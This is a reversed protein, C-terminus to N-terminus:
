AISGLGADLGLRGSADTLYWGGDIKVIYASTESTMEDDDGKVTIDADIDYGETVSKRALEYRDNVGERIENLKSDTLKDEKTVKYSVRVNDGYEDELLDIVTDVVDEADRELDDIDMDYTDEYYDWYAQPALKDLKNVQGKIMVDIYNNIASKYGGGATLAVILVVIVVVAAAAIIAINRTSLKKPAPPNPNANEGNEAGPADAQAQADAPQQVTEEAPKIEAGCAECKVADDELQAGCQRCFKSM